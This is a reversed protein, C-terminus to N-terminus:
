SQGWRARHRVRRRESRKVLIKSAIDRSLAVQTKGCRLMIAGRPLKEVLKVKSNPLINLALLREVSEREEPIAVVTCYEGCALNSLSEPQIQVSSGRSRPIPRGHPCTTPRKLIDDIKETLEDDLVHEFECAHEHVGPLGHGFVDCLLREALKHRQVVRIAEDMGKDTLAAGSRARTVLGKDSLKSLMEVVSPDKVGLVKALDRVKVRQKSETQGRYIAELYEEESVSLQTDNRILRRSM